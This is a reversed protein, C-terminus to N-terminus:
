GKGMGRRVPPPKRRTPTQVGVRKVTVTLDQPQRVQQLAVGPRPIRLCRGGTFIGPADLPPRHGGDGRLLQVTTLSDRSGLGRQHGSPMAHAARDGATVPQDWLDPRPPAQGSGAKCLGDRYYVYVLM